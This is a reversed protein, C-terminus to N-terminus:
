DDCNITLRYTQKQGALLVINPDEEIVSHPHTAGDIFLVIRDYTYGLETAVFEADVVPLDYRGDTTNYAGAAILESYRVYGNGSIETTIWQAVTNEATFGTVGVQCLMVKLTEGEYAAVAVRQLEKTSITTTLAM